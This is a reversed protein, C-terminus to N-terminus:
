EEDEEIFKEKKKKVVKFYYGVGIGIVSLVGIMLYTKKQTGKMAGTEKGVNSNKMTKVLLFNRCPPVFTILLGYIPKILPTKIPNHYMYPVIQSM